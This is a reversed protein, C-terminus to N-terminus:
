LLYRRQFKPFTFLLKHTEEDYFFLSDRFPKIKESIEKRSVKSPDVKKSSIVLSFDSLFSPMYFHIPRVFKFVEKLYSPSLTYYWKGKIEEWCLTVYLGQDTLRDYIIEAFEKSYLRNSLPNKPNPETLDALILDYRNKTEEIFKFGDMIKLNVRKDNGKYSYPLFRRCKEVVTKDIDVWDIRINEYKLLEEVTTGEGGGIVLVREPNDLAVMSSHVLAEHYIFYDAESSNIKNDLALFEGLSESHAILIQQYKSRGYFDIKDIPYTVSIYKSSQTFFLNPM